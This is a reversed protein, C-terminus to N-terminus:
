KFSHASEAHYLAENSIKTIGIHAFNNEYFDRCNTYYLELYANNKHTGYFYCLIYLLVLLLGFGEYVYKISWLYVFVKNM